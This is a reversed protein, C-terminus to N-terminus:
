LKLLRERLVRSQLRSATLRQGDSMLVSYTGGPLAHIKSIKRASVLTGRGLRVFDGPRLRAELDKLRHSLTMREGADTAVHLLEGEAVVSVIAEVPLLM